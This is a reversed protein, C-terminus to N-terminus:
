YLAQDRTLYPLESFPGPGSMLCTTVPSDSVAAISGASSFKESM